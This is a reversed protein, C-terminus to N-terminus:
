LGNKFKSWSIFLSCPKRTYKGMLLSIVGFLVSLQRFYEKWRGSFRVLPNDNLDRDTVVVLPNMVFDVECHYLSIMRGSFFGATTLEM